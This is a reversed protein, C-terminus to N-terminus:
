KSPATPTFTYSEGAKRIIGIGPYPLHSGAIRKGSAAAADFFARRAAQARSADMDYTTCAEPHPVQIDVAHLLDAVVFLDGIELITHGPTHGAADLAKIGPLVEEGFRMEKVRDGYAALVRRATDGGGGAASQWYAREPGSIYLEAKPFVAQGDGDLLGGIHDGHMHTILIADVQEPAVGQERLREVTKGIGRGNGTDILITRGDGQLLFTNVSARAERGGALRIFEQQALSPFLAMRMATHSDQIPTLEYNGCTEASAACALMLLTAVGGLLAQKM